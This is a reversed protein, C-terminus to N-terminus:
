PPEPPGDAGEDTEYLQHESFEIFMYVGFSLEPFEHLTKEVDLSAARFPFQGLMARFPEEEIYPEIHYVTETTLDFISFPGTFSEPFERAPNVPQDSAETLTEYLHNTDFLARTGGDPLTRDPGTNSMFERANADRLVYCQNNRWMEDSTIFHVMENYEFQQEEPVPEDYKAQGKYDSFFFGPVTTVHNEGISRGEKGQFRSTKQLPGQEGAIIVRNTEKEVAWFATGREYLIDVSFLPYPIAVRNESQQISSNGMWYWHVEESM